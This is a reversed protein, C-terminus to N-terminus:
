ALVVALGALIAMVGSIQAFHSAGSTSSTAAASSAASSAKSTSTSSVKTSTSTTTASTSTTAGALSTTSSTTSDAAVSTVSDTVNVCSTSTGAQITVAATYALAGTSDKLALTVAVGAINVTWTYSTINLDTVLSELTTSIVGGPLVTVYYPATGGSWSILTPECAVLSSPTNITLTALASSALLALTAAAPLLFNVM